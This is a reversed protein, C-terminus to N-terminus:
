EENIQEDYDKDLEEQCKKFYEFEYIVSDLDLNGFDLSELEELSITGYLMRAANKCSLLNTRDWTVGAYTRKYKDFSEQFVINKWELENWEFEHCGIHYCTITKTDFDILYAYAEDGHQGNTLEYEDNNDKILLTAFSYVDWYNKNNNLKDKLDAGVGEPYGDYHHYINVINEGEKLRITARTSM